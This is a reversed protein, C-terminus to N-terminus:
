FDWLRQLNKCILIKIGSLIDLDRKFDLRKVILLRKVTLEVLIIEEKLFSFYWPVTVVDV